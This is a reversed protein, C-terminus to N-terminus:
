NLRARIREIRKRNVGLDSYGVRSKSRLAIKANAADLEFVADDPFGFLASSFSVEIRTASDFRIKVRPEIKIAAKLKAFALEASGQYSLADIQFGAESNSSSVCSPRDIPCILESTGAGFGAPAASNKALYALRVSYLALLAVLALLSYGIIRM